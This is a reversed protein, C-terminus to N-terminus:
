CIISMIEEPNLNNGKKNMEEVVLILDIQAKVVVGKRSRVKNTSM